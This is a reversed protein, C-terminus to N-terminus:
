TKRESAGRRDKAGPDSSGALAYARAHIADLAAELMQRASEMDDKGADAAIRLPDGIVIAGRGFPLGLSARDWSKFDIRWRNVVAVPYIPRGSHKALAIIGEGCVRSVKPVDATLVLSVGQDLARVMERLAAVGGRRHMKEARGGSGRIPIVGLKQLVMANIEADKNRSILAAVKLGTPWAFHAMLHQGHWLAGIVPADKAAQARFDAPEITYRTTREVLRLYNAALFAALKQVFASRGLRKLLAAGSPRLVGDDKSADPQISFAICISSSIVCTRM